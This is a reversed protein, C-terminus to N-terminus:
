VVDVAVPVTCEVPARITSSAGLSSAPQRNIGVGVDSRGVFRRESAALECVYVRAELNVTYEPSVRPVLTDRLHTLFTEHFDHWVDPQEFYPDMGPFPSPMLASRIEETRRM